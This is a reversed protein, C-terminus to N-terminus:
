GLKAKTKEHLFNSEKSLRSVDENMPRGKGDAEVVIALIGQVKGITRVTEWPEKEFYIRAQGMFKEALEIMRERTM